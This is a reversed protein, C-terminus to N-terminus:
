QQRMKIFLPTSRSFPPRSFYFMLFTRPQCAAPVCPVCRLKSIRAAVSRRVFPPRCPRGCLPYSNWSGDRCTRYLIEVYEQSAHDGSPGPRGEEGRQLSPQVHRLAADFSERTLTLSPLRDKPIIFRQSSTYLEPLATRLRYLSAETCLAKLDAGTFSETRPVLYSILDEKEKELPTHQLQIQLIHQRAAADPKTFRVERDFRGPRRLAPDITDPRNTAGIIIVQGRDELGDLLALLTAVLAAQTQETKAHRTPVLGDIEDFFVISPQHKKAEEFLLKLQRESEGVWKSLLDAGKRMFFTIRRGTFRSGESALARALLTKGTGPPGVFLVGRPPTLQLQEFLEPYLLPLLVVERLLVIHSPLGGVSDFNIDTEVHLPCIDGSAVNNNNNPNHNSDNEGEKPGEKLGLLHRYRQDIKQTRSIKEDQVYRKALEKALLYSININEASAEKAKQHHRRM